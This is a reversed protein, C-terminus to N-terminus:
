ELKDISGNPFNNYCIVLNVIAPKLRNREMLYVTNHFFIYNKKKCLFSNEFNENLKVFINKTHTKIDHNQISYQYRSDSENLISDSFIIAQGNYCFQFAVGRSLEYKVVEIRHKNKIIDIIDIFLFLNLLTLMCFLLQKKKDKHFIYLAIIIVYLLIVQTFNLSIHTTLAGPLKEIFLIINNMIKVELSLLFGVWHSLFSNFSIALTIVGTVMMVTSLSVVCLNTLLFYNPFQSFYYIAIPSTTLQAALSVSVMEWIYNGFKTKPSHWRSIKKQYFVIGFMALYSLEFGVDFILIPNIILLIFLSTLVSQVINSQRHLLKGIIVFTFMAASRAAPPSLGTISAYFWVAILLIFSRAYSAKISNGLPQLLFSLIMFIIGVHMGSVSLIHSVGTAAYSAKLEPEITDDAGLLIATAVSYEPGSLGAERLKESLFRQLYSSYRNISIKKLKELKIWNQKGIYGTFYIEKMKMSKKYDFQYPNISSEIVSLKTNVILKDGVEWRNMISDKQFYLIVKKTMWYNTNNLAYLRVLVKFTKKRERPLEKIEAMWFQQRTVKEVELPDINKHFHFFVALYGAFVFAFYLLATLTYQLYSYRKPQFLILFIGFFLIVLTCYLVNLHNLPLFFGLIIGIIYPLLVKLVPYHSFNM